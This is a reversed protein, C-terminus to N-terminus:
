DKYITLSARFGAAIYWYKTTLLKGTEDYVKLEATNVGLEGNNLAKFGIENAGENLELEIEYPSAGLTINGDAIAKGHLINIRDGDIAGFDRCSIIVYKLKTRIKGLSFDKMYESPLFLSEDFKQKIKWTPQVLDSKQVMNVGSKKKFPESLETFNIKPRISKNTLGTIPSLTLRADKPLEVKASDIASIKFGGQSVDIQAYVNHCLICSFFLITFAIFRM